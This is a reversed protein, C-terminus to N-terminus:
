VSGDLRLRNSHITLTHNLRIQDILVHYAHEMNLDTLVFVRYFHMEVDSMEKLVFVIFFAHLDFSHIVPM